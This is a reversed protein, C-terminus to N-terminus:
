GQQCSDKLQLSFSPMKVKRLLACWLFHRLIVNFCSIPVVLNQFSFLYLVASQLDSTVLFTSGLDCSGILNTHSSTVEFRIPRHSRPLFELTVLSRCDATHCTYWVREGRAPSTICGTSHIWPHPKLSVLSAVTRPRSSFSPPTQDLYENKPLSIPTLRQVLLHM